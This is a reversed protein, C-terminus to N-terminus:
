PKPPFEHAKPARNASISWRNGDKKLVVMLGQLDLGFEQVATAVASFHTKFVGM